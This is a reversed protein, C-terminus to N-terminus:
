LLTEALTFSLTLLIYPKVKKLLLKYTPHITNKVQYFVLGESKDNYM